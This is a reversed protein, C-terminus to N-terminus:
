ARQQQFGNGTVVDSAGAACASYDCSALGRVIFLLIDITM